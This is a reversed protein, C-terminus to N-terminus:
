LCSGATWTSAPTSPVVPYMGTLMKLWMMMDLEIRGSVLTIKHNLDDHGHYLLCVVKQGLELHDRGRLDDGQCRAHRGGFPPAKHGFTM